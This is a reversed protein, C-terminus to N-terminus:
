LDKKRFVLEKLFEKPDNKHSEAQLFLSLSKKLNYNKQTYIEYFLDLDKNYTNHVLLYANNVKRQSFGKFRNTKFLSNYQFSFLTQFNEIIIMKQEIIKKSPLNKQYLSDLSHHLIKLQQSFVMQDHIFNKAQHYKKSTTDYHVAIYRLAGERGVFTALEENFQSQGKIYLTAHTQEHILLSAIEYVSYEKMYSFLPDTFFGLTSFARAKWSCVDFGKNLLKRKERFADSSDFYGKYPAAGVIPYWWHFQDFTDPASASVVDVLYNRDIEAYRSYNKDEKLGLSDSAFNKISKVLKLFQILSSDSSVQLLDENSEARSYIKFLDIGQRAIYCQCFLIVISLVFGYRFINVPTQLSFGPRENLRDDLPASIGNELIKPCVSISNYIKM